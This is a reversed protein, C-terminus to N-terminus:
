LAETAPILDTLELSKRIGSATFYKLVLVMEQDKPLSSFGLEDLAGAAMEDAENLMM